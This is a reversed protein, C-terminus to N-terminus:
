NNLRFLPYSVYEQNKDIDFEHTTNLILLRKFKYTDVTHADTNHLAISSIAIRDHYYKMYKFCIISLKNPLPQDPAELAAIDNFANGISMTEKYELRNGYFIHRNYWLEGSAHTYVILQGNDYMQWIIDKIPIYVLGKAHHFIDIGIIHVDDNFYDKNNDMPSIYENIKYRIGQLIGTIPEIIHGNNYQVQIPRGLRFLESPRIQYINTSDVIGSLRLRLDIFRYVLKINHDIM